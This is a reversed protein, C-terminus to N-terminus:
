YDVDKWATMGTQAEEGEESIILQTGDWEGTLVLQQAGGQPAGMRSGPWEESIVPADVNGSPLIIEWEEEIMPSIHSRGLGTESPLNPHSMETDENGSHLGSEAADVTHVLPNTVDNYSVVQIANSTLKEPVSTVTDELGVGSTPADECNKKMLNSLSSVESNQGDNCIFLSPTEKNMLVQLVGHQRTYDRVRLIGHVRKMHTSWGVYNEFKAKCKPCVFMVNSHKQMHYRLTSSSLYTEGCVDCRYPREGTHSKIHYKLETKTFFSRGCIECVKDRGPGYEEHIRRVHDTLTYKSVFAKDCITCKNYNETSHTRMHTALSYKNALVKGCVGCGPPKVDREKEHVRLHRIFNGRVVFKMGCEGCSYKAKVSDESEPHEKRRHCILRVPDRFEKFCYECTKSPTSNHIKEEHIGLQHPSAFKVGCENCEYEGFLHTLIHDQLYNQSSYTNECYLCSLTKSRHTKEHALYLPTKKFVKKCVDCVLSGRDGWVLGEVQVKGRHLKIIHSMFKSRVRFIKNCVPCNNKESGKPAHETNSHNSLETTTGFKVDCSECLHDGNVHTLQHSEFSEIDIFKLSCKNCTLVNEPHSEQLHRSLSLRAATHRCFPCCYQKNEFNEGHNILQMTSSVEEEYHDHTKTRMKGSYGLRGEGVANCDGGDM